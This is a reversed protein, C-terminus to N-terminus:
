EDTEARSAAREGSAESNTEDASSESDEDDDSEQDASVSRESDQRKMLPSAETIAEKRALIMHRLIADNFRFGTEIEDLIAQNCEINMLIYHAKHMKQIPFTLQRRGWDEIRHIVGASEEIIARYRDVMASVQNSQDPHILIVIEYHRM